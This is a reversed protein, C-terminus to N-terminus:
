FGIFGLVKDGRTHSSVLNLSIRTASVKSVRCGRDM